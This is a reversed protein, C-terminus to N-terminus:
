KSVTARIYTWTISFVRRDIIDTYINKTRQRWAIILNTLTDITDIKYQKAKSSLTLTQWLWMNSIFLLSLSIVKFLVLSVCQCIDSQFTDVNVTSVKVCNDIIDITVSYNFLCFDVQWNDNEICSEEGSSESQTYNPVNWNLVLLFINNSHKFFFIVRDKFVTFM